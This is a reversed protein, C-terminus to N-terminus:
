HSPNHNQRGETYSPFPISVVVSASYRGNVYIPVVAVTGGMERIPQVVMLWAGLISFALIVLITTYIGFEKM